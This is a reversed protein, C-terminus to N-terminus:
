FVALRHGGYSLTQQAGPPTKTRPVIDM